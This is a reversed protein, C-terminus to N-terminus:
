RWGLGRSYPRTRVPASPRTSRNTSDMLEHPNTHSSRRRKLSTGCSLIHYLPSFILLIKWISILGPRQRCKKMSSSGRPVAPLTFAQMGWMPASSKRTM